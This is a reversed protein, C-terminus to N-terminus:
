SPLALSGETVEERGRGEIALVYKIMAGYPLTNVM